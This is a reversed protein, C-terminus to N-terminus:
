TKPSAGHQLLTAFVLPPASYRYDYKRDIELRPQTLWSGLGWLESADEMTAAIRKAEAVLDQLETNFAQDFARRATVRGFYNIVGCCHVRHNASRVSKGGM